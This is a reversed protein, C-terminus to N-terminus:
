SEVTIAFLCKLKICFAEVAFNFRHHGMGPCRCFLVHRGFPSIFDNMSAHREAVLDQHGRVSWWLMVITRLAKRNVQTYLVLRFCLTDVVFQRCVSFHSHRQSRRKPGPLECHKDVPEPYGPHNVAFLTLVSQLNSAVMSDFVCLARMEPAANHVPRIMVRTTTRKRNNSEIIFSTFGGTM